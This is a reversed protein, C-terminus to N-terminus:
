SWAVYRCVLGEQLQTSDNFSPFSPKLTDDVTVSKKVATLWTDLVEAMIKESFACPGRPPPSACHQGSLGSLQRQKTDSRHRCTVQYLPARTELTSSISTYQICCGRTHHSLWQPSCTDENQLLYVAMNATKGSVPGACTCGMKGSQVYEMTQQWLVIETLTLSPLTSPVSLPCLFAINRVSWWM